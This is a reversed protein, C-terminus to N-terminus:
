KGTYDTLKSLKKVYLTCHIPTRNLITFNSPLEMQNRDDTRHNTDTTLREPLREDGMEDSYYESDGSSSIEGASIFLNTYKQRKNSIRKSFHRKAVSKANLVEAIYKLKRVLKTKERRRKVSQRQRRLLESRYPFLKKCAFCIRIKM